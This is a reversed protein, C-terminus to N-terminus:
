QCAEGALSVFVLSLLKFLLFNMVESLLIGPILPQLTPLNLLETSTPGETPNEIIRKM